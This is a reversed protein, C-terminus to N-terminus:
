GPAGPVCFREYRKDDSLPTIGWVTRRFGDERFPHRWPADVMVTSPDDYAFRFIPFLPVGHTMDESWVYYCPRRAEDAPNMFPILNLSLVKADPFAQVLNGATNEERALYVSGPPTVERLTDALAGYPVFDWCDDCFPPAPVLASITRLLLILAAALGAGRVLLGSGGGRVAESALAVFGPLVAPLVYRASVDSVGLWVIGLLLATLSVASITLLFREASSFRPRARRWRWVLLLVFPSLFTLVAVLLAGTGSLARAVHAADDLGLTVAASAAYADSQARFWMLHPWVIVLAVLLAVLLGGRQLRHRWQPDLGSALLFPVALMLTNYKALLGLGTILGLAAFRGIRPADLVRLAAWVFAASTALLLASHTFAQHLSWGVPYLLVLSCAAVFGAREASQGDGEGDTAEGGADRALRRVALHVFLMAAAVCAYKLILFSWLDSPTVLHLLKTLWEFLPPNDAQYGWQWRQTFLNTKADDGSLWPSVARRLLANSLGWVLAVILTGRLNLPLSLRALM